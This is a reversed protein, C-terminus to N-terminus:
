GVPRGQTPANPGASRADRIHAKTFTLTNLIETYVICMHIVKLGRIFNESSLRAASPGRPEHSVARELTPAHGQSLIPDERIVPGRADTNFLRM